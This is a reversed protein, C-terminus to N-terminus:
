GHRNGDLGGALVAGPMDSMGQSRASIWAVEWWLSDLLRRGVLHGSLIMM